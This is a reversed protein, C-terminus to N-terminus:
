PLTVWNVYFYVPPLNFLISDLRDWVGGHGGLITSTDKVGMARKLASEFLDGYSGWFGLFAGLAALRAWDFDLPLYYTSLGGAVAGALVGGFLGSVTKKPSVKPSLKPGGIRSGAYFAGTDNLCTVLLVFLLWNTGHDLQKILMVFSLLFTLYLHGLAFRSVLNVSIRDNEPALVRLLYIGVLSFALVLGASQGDPGFFAAGFMAAYHGLLGLALLGKRERGLLNAWFEMWALSGAVLALALLFLKNPLLVAVVTPPVLILAVLWRNLESSKVPSTLSM